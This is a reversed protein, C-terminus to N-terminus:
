AGREMCPDKTWTKLLESFHGPSSVFVDPSQLFYNRIWMSAEIANKMLAARLSRYRDGCIDMAQETLKNSESRVIPDLENRLVLFEKLDARYRAARTQNADVLQNVEYLFVKNRMKPLHPPPGHRAKLLHTEVPDARSTKGLNDLHIHFRSNDTCVGHMGVRCKGILYEPPPMKVNSRVRYNYYSEFWLVPHRLGVLLKTEPWYLNFAQLAKANYLDSPAKYGRKYQRGPPLAHLQRVLDAPKGYYLSNVEHTHMQIEEHSALWRMTFSTATKPHGIIAFDLIFQVDGRIDTPGKGVLSNLSPWTDRQGKRVTGKIAHGNTANFRKKSALSGPKISKNRVM